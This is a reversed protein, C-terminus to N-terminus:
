KEAEIVYIVNASEPLIYLPAYGLRNNKQSMWNLLYTVDPESIEKPPRTGSFTLSAWHSNMQASDKGLLEQYFNDRIKSNKPWDSLEVRKGSLRTTKGRYIKRAKVKSIPKISDDLTFIAIDANAKAEWNTLVSLSILLVMPTISRCLNICM